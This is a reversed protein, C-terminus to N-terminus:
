FPPKADSMFEDFSMYESITDKADDVMQRYYSLDIFKELGLKKVNESEMWLYGNAGAVSSYKGDRKVVLEGGGHGPLIPTFQGVRGVFTRDHTKEIEEGLVKIQEDIADYESIDISEGSAMKTNLRKRKNVLKDYMRENEENVNSRIDIFIEGKSVSKTECMDEFEIPEKSFLTKYVFPVQFQTGTAHWVGEHDKAIYVADNVLCMREYESEVEFEYGYKKGLDMIFQEIKEDAYPIKISDTKVHAVKYGLKEVERALMSMFLCGRKAVVNDVNREDRFRNKYKSFTQGYVANIPVKLSKSLQKFSVKLKDQIEGIRGDFMSRALAEDKHKIAVRTDVLQKFRATYKDGFLNLAIITHPHMSTVDFTKVNFHVGHLALVRGGENIEEGNYFSHCKGASDIEYSYGPFEERLDPINFERQPNRDDGFILQQTMANTSENVCLGSLESLVQRAIWDDELYYFCAVTAQVDYGCYQGVRSWLEKPVPQDWALGLEMHHKGMEIEYKKLSQKKSAFDLIDTYSINKAESYGYVEHGSVIDHSLNYLKEISAGQAAAYIIINDYKKNNFGILRYRMLDLIDKPSPNYWTVITDSGDFQWCIVLLNPFVEIDYFVIPNNGDEDTVNPNVYKAEKEEFDKSMFHMEDFMDLCKRKSNTSKMCFLKVSQKLGSVDYSVGNNYAKDLEHKIFSVNCVTSNHYEKRLARVILTKLAKENLIVDEDILDKAEKKIPLFGPQMHCIDINNCAVLKRRLASLGNYVKVEINPGYVSSLTLPDGDYIYYLHLGNGSRSYEAYTPPFDKAAKLNAERNKEGDISIDFDICILYLPTKVYHQKTTDIDILKTEVDKWYTKPSGDEKTYQAICDSYLDDFKSHQETLVLWDPIDISKVVPEEKPKEIKIIGLKEYRFGKFYGNCMKGPEYEYNAFYQEFYPRLENRFENRNHRFSIAGMDCYRNYENWLDHFRMGDNKEIESLIEELFDYIINTARLARVPLYDDYKRKNHIYVQQCQFAIGPLENKIGEMLRTYEDFPLKQGTTTVDILRRTLGSNADTIKVDKNSGLFLFAHFTTTYIGKFKEDVTLPEHSILSNLRTNDNIKSLDSDDELGILPDHKLPELAFRSNGDGLAKANIAAYYGTFLQRLIKFFSGKGTGPEGTIVIFKQIWTSDGYVISGIAWELKKREEPAYFVDMLKDYCPTDMQLLPYPLRHTSYYERKNETNSFIPKLDLPIYNDRLQKTVFKNWKDIIGSDADRMLKPRWAEDSTKQKEKCYARVDKDIAKIVDDQDKSWLGTEECYAAYFDRGKIMLDKSKEVIFKPTVYNIGKNQVVGLEYFDM